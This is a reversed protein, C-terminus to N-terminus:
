PRWVVRYFKQPFIAADPDVFLAPATNTSIDVWDFLDTSGQVIYNFGPVGDIQFSVQSSGASFAPSNLRAAETLYVTLTAPSSTVSGYTNAVTVSYDGMTSMQVSSLMLSLNNGGPVTNSNNFYWQYSLPIGSAATQVAFSATNGVRVKQSQPQTVIQPLAPPEVGAMRTVYMGQGNEANLNFRGFQAPPYFTGAVFIAGPDRIALGRPDARNTGGLSRAWLPNGAPDYKAILSIVNTLTTDGFTLLPDQQASPSISTVYVCGFTDLALRMGAQRGSGMQRSWILNGDPNCKALFFDPAGGGVNTITIDGYTGIGTGSAYINEAGDLVMCVAWPFPRSWVQNGADDYKNLILGSTYISGSQGVRVATGPIVGKAWVLNGATDYRALFAANGSVNTTGFDATGSYSALMFVNGAADITLGRGDAGDNPDTAGIRRAWLAQGQGDFKAVYMQQVGPPTTLTNTGFTATGSFDGIVYVSGASDTAVREGIDGFSTGAIPRVWVFNGWEDYKCVFTAGSYSWINSLIVGGFDIGGLCGYSGAVFVNGSGDIALDHGSSIGIFGNVQNTPRRAWLFDPPNALGLNAVDSTAAGAANTVVVTYTGINSNQVSAITLTPNTAGSINQGNFRWQWVLPPSGAATVSFAVNSNVVAAQSVPQQVIAAPYNVALQAERSQAGGYPNNAVVQYTGANASSANTIILTANTAGPLLTRNFWWQYTMPSAGLTAVTFTATQGAIV